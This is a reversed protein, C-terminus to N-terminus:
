FCTMAERFKWIARQYPACRIVVDTKEPISIPLSLTENHEFNPSITFPRRYRFVSNPGRSAFVCDATGKATGRLTGFTSLLYGAYGAPITFGSCNTQNTGIQMFLFVNAETTAHRITITGANFGGSGATVGQMTHVRRYTNVSQVPTTGNLTLTESVRDWNQDLGQISVTRLGTGAAADAANSSLVEIPESDTVPFGTYLGSGGWLDEPTTSTDIDINRGYKNVTLYGDVLGGSQWIPNQRYISESSIQLWENSTKIVPIAM